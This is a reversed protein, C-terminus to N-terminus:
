RDTGSLSNLRDQLRQAARAKGIGRWSRWSMLGLVALLCGGARRQQKVTQEIFNNTKSPDRWFRCLSEADSAVFGSKALRSAVPQDCQSSDLREAGRAILARASDPSLLFWQRSGNFRLIAESTAVSLFAMSLLIALVFLGCSFGIKDARIWRAKTEQMCRRRPDFYDGARGVVELSVNTTKSWAILEQADRNTEVHMVVFRFLMLSAQDGLYSKIAPDTLGGKGHFMRWLFFKIVYWSRTRFIIWSFFVLGAAASLTGALHGYTFFEALM